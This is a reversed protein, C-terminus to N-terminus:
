CVEVQSLSRIPVYLPLVPQLVSPILRESVLGTTDQPVRQWNTSLALNLLVLWVTTMIIQLTLYPLPQLKQNAFLVIEAITVVLTWACFM